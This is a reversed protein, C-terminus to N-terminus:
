DNKEGRRPRGVTKEVQQYKEVSPLHVVMMRDSVKSFELVKSRALHRVHQVSCGLIESAEKVTIWNKQLMRIMSWNNEVSSFLALLFGPPPSHCSAFGLRRPEQKVHQIIRVRKLGAIECPLSTFVGASLVGISSRRVVALSLLVPFSPDQKSRLLWM